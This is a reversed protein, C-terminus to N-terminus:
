TGRANFYALFIRKRGVPPGRRAGRMAFSSVCLGPRWTLRMASLQDHWKFGKDPLPQLAIDMRLAARCYKKKVKHLEHLHQGLNNKGFHPFNHLSIRVM